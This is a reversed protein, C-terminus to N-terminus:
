TASGSSYRMVGGLSLRKRFHVTGPFKWFTLSSLLERFEVGSITGDKAPSPLGSTVCVWSSQSKRHQGM